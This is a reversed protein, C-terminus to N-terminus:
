LSRSYLPLAARFGVMAAFLTCLPRDDRLVIKHDM